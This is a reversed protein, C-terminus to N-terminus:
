VDKATVSNGVGLDDISTGVNYTINDGGQNYDANADLSIGIEHVRNNTLDINNGQVVNRDSNDILIGHIQGTRISTNGSSTTNIKINNNCLQYQESRYIDIGTVGDLSSSSKEIIEINNNSIQNREGLLLQIGYINVSHYWELLTTTKFSISNGVINAGYLRNGTIGAFWLPGRNDASSSFSLQNFSVDITNSQLSKTSGGIQFGVERFDLVKNYSLSIHNSQSLNSTNDINIAYEVQSRMINYSASIKDYSDVDIAAQGSNVVVKNVNASGNGNLLRVGVDGLSSSDDSLDFVIDEIVVDSKNDSSADGYIKIIDSFTTTNQSEIKFNSFRYNATANYIVFCEEETTPKIIVGSKSEGRIDMNRNPLYVPSTLDYTGNFIYIGEHNTDDLANVAKQIDTYDGQNDNPAVTIFPRAWQQVTKSIDKESLPGALAPEWIKAASDDDYVVIVSPSLDDWDDLAKLFKVASIELSIDKRILIRDILVDYSTDQGYLTDSITIIDDVQLELLGSKALFAIIAQKLLKRQYYLTGLKQAEQSDQV